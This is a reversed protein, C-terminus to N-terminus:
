QKDGESFTQQQFGTQVRAVAVVTAVVFVLVFFRRKHEGSV